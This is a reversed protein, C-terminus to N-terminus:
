PYVYVAAVKGPEIVTGNVPGTLGGNTTVYLVGSDILTRGFRASTSGALATSNLNGAVETEVGKPTIKAVTNAKGQAVYANGEFDFAFDDVGGQTNHAIVEFAGAATGDKHIAVRAFFNQGSNTFYTYGNRVRVGNVGIPVSATAGAKLTADDLVVKYAKTQTNLRWVVGLGSDALLITEKDADLLAAGNLLAAEPISTIKVLKAAGTSGFSRMDVKWVVYSGPIFPPTTSVNGTIVAFVDIEYEVIGLAGSAGPFTTVLTPAKGLKFPDVQYVAPTDLRSILIKGNFRVALNEVWAGVNAFQSVDRTPYSTPRPAAVAPARLALSIHCLLSFALFLLSCRPLTLM